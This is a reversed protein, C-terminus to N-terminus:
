CDRSNKIGAVKSVLYQDASRVTKDMGSKNKRVCSCM